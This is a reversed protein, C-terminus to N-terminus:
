VMPATATFIKCVSNISFPKEFLYDAIGENKLKNGLKANGGTMLAIKTNSSNKRIRRVLKEGDLFPM